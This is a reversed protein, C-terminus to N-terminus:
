GSILAANLGVEIFGELPCADCLDEEDGMAEQGAKDAPYFEVGQTQGFGPLGQAMLRQDEAAFWDGFGIERNFRKFFRIVTHRDDPQKIVVSAPRDAM